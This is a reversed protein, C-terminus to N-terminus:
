PGYVSAIGLSWEDATLSQSIFERCTGYFAATCHGPSHPSLQRVVGDVMWVWLRATDIPRLFDVLLM